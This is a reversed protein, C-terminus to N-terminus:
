YPVFYFRCDDNVDKGMILNVSVDIILEPYYVFLKRLELIGEPTIRNNTLNLLALKFYRKSLYSVLMCIHKDELNNDCLYIALKEGRIECRNYRISSDIINILNSVSNVSYDLERSHEIKYLDKEMCHLCYDRYKLAVKEDCKECRKDLLKVNLKRQESVYKKMNVLLCQEVSFRTFNVKSAILTIKEDKHVEPHLKSWVKLKEFLGYMDKYKFETVLKLINLPIHKQLEVDMTTFNDGLYQTIIPTADSYNLLQIFIEENMCELLSKSIISQLSQIQWYDVAKYLEVLINTQVTPLQGSYMFTLIVEIVSPNWDVMTVDEYKDRTDNKYKNELMKSHHCLVLKHAYWIKDLASHKLTIDSLFKNNILYSLDM